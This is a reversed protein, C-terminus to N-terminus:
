VHLVNLVNKQNQKQTRIMKSRTSLGLIAANDAEIDTTTQINYVHLAALQMKLLNCQLVDNKIFIKM